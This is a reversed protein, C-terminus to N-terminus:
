SHQVHPGVKQSHAADFRDNVILTGDDTWRTAALQTSTIVRQALQAASKPPLVVKDEDAWTLAGELAPARGDPTGLLWAKEIWGLQALWLVEDLIWYSKARADVVIVPTLEMLIFVSSEWM